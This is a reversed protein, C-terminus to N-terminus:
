HPTPAPTLTPALTRTPISVDNSVTIHATPNGVLAGNAGYGNCQITHSGDAVSKSNWTTSYSPAYASGSAYFRRDVDLNIWKVKPSAACSVTITGSVMAGNAPATLQVDAAATKGSLGIFKCGMTFVAVVYVLRRALQCSQRVICM